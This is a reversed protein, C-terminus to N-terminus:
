TRFNETWVSLFISVVKAESHRQAIWKMVLITGAEAGARGPEGTFEAGWFALSFSIQFAAEPSCAGKRTRGEKWDDGRTQTNGGALPRVGVNRPFRVVM